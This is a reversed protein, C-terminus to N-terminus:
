GIIELAKAKSALYFFTKILEKSVAKIRIWQWILLNKM